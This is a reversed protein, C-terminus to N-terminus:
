KGSFKLIFCYFLVIFYFKLELNLANKELHFLNEELIDIKWKSQSIHIFTGRSDPFIRKNCFLVKIIELIRKVPRQWKKRTFYACFVLSNCQPLVGSSNMDWFLRVHGNWPLGPAFHDCTSQSSSFPALCFPNTKPTLTNTSTNYIAILKSPQIKQNGTYISITKNDQHQYYSGAM